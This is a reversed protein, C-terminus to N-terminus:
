LGSYIPEMEKNRIAETAQRELKGTSYAVHDTILTISKVFRKGTSRKQKLEVKLVHKLSNWFPREKLKLPKLRKSSLHHKVMHYLWSKTIVGSSFDCNILFNVVEKTTESIRVEKATNAGERFSVLVDARRQWYCFKQGSEIADYDIANYEWMKAYRTTWRDWEKTLEIHNHETAWNLMEPTYQEKKRRRGDRTKIKHERFAMILEHSVNKFVDFSLAEKKGNKDTNETVTIEVIEFYKSLEAM